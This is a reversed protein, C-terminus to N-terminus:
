RFKVIWASELSAWIAPILRSQNLRLRSYLLFFNFSFIM